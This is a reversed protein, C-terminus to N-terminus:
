ESEAGEEDSIRPVLAYDKGHGVTFDNRGGRDRGRLLWIPRKSMSFTVGPQVHEDGAAREFVSTAPMYRIVFGARRKPSRNANSGHILYVDHLSFQGAKLIDDRGSAADFQSPEVEQNLVVDSRDTVRHRYISGNVHSGPIYRM